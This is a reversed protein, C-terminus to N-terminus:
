VDLIAERQEIVREVDKITNNIRADREEAAVEEVGCCQAAVEVEACGGDDPSPLREEAM